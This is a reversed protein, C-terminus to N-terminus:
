ALAAVKRKRRMALGIGGFGLLMMAWTSPEPVGGAVGASLTFIAWVHGGANSTDSDALTGFGPFVSDGFTTGNNADQWYVILGGAYPVGAFCGFIGATECGLTLQPNSDFSGLGTDLFVQDLLAQAADGAAASTTFVFDSSDNCGGFLAPCSGDAFTVGYSTGNVNVGTAGTLVGSGNVIQTAACAPAAVLAVAAGFAFALKRM